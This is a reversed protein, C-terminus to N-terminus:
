DYGSPICYIIHITHFSLCGAMLFFFFRGKAGDLWLGTSGFTAMTCLARHACCLLGCRNSTKKKIINASYVTLCFRYIYIWLYISLPTYIFIYYIIADTRHANGMHKVLSTTVKTWFCKCNHIQGYNMAPQGGHKKNLEFSHALPNIATFGWAILLHFPIIFCPLARHTIVTPQHTTHAPEYHHIYTSIDHIIYRYEYPKPVLLSLDKPCVKYTSFQRSTTPAIM